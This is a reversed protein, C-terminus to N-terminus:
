EKLENRRETACKLCYNRAILPWRSYRMVYLQREAGCCDCSAAIILIENKENMM